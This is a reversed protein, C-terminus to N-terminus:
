VAFAPGSTSGTEGHHRRSPELRSTPRARAVLREVESLVLLAADLVRFDNGCALCDAHEQAIDLASAGYRAYLDQATKQVMAPSVM